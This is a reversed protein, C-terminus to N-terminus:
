LFRTWKQKRHTLGTTGICKGIMVTLIKYDPLLDITQLDKYFAIHELGEFLLLSVPGAILGGAFM